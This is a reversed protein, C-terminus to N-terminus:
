SGAQAQGHPPIKIHLETDTAPMESSEEYEGPFLPKGLPNEPGEVGDAALIRLRYWGTGPKHGGPTRTDFKGDTITALGQPGDTGHAADPDFRIVGRPVPRGQYEVTGAVDIRVPGSPQCGVLAAIALWLTRSLASQTPKPM